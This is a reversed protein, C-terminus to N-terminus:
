CITGDISQYDYNTLKEEEFEKLLMKNYKTIVDDYARQFNYLLM